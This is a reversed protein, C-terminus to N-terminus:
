YYIKEIKEVTSFPIHWEYILDSVKYLFLHSFNRVFQRPNITCPTKDLEDKDKIGSFANLPTSTLQAAQMKLLGEYLKLQEESELYKSHNREM